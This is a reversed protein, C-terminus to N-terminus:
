VGIALVQPDLFRGAQRDAIGDAVEQHGSCSLRLRGLEGDGRLLSTDSSLLFAPRAPLSAPTGRRESGLPCGDPGPVPRGGAVGAAGDRYLSPGARPPPLM